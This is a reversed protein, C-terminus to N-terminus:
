ERPPQHASPPTIDTQEALPRGFRNPLTILRSWGRQQSADVVAWPEGDIVLTVRDADWRLELMGAAPAEHPGRQSTQVQSLLPLVGEDLCRLDLLPPTPMVNYVWVPECILSAKGADRVHLYAARGDREFRAELKGDPSTSTESRVDGAERTAAADLLEAAAPDLASLTEVENMVQTDRILSVGSIRDSEFVVQSGRVLTPDNFADNLLKAEVRSGDWSDISAWIHEVVSSPGLELAVRVMIRSENGREWAAKIAPLREQWVRQEAECEERTKPEMEYIGRLLKDVSRYHGADEVVLTSGSHDEDFDSQSFHELEPRAEHAWRLVYAGHRYPRAEGPKVEQGRALQGAVRMLLALGRNSVEPHVGFAELDPCFFKAMGHIHLWSQSADGGPPALYHYTVFRRVDLPFVGGGLEVADPGDLASRAHADYVRGAGALRGALRVAQAVTGAPDPGATAGVRCLTKMSAARPGDYADDFDPPQFDGPELALLWVGLQLPPDDREVLVMHSGEDRSRAEGIRWGDPGVIEGLRSALEGVETPTVVSYLTLWTM